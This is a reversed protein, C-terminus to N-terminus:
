EGEAGFKNMIVDMITKVEASNVPNGAWHQKSEDYHWHRHYTDM